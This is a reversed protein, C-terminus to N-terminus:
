LLQRLLTKAPVPVRPRSEDANPFLSANPFPKRRGTQSGGPVLAQPGGDGSFGVERKQKDRLYPLEFDGFGLDAWGELAKLLHCPVFTEARAGISRCATTKGAQRPQSVLAVQRHRQQHDKFVSTYLPAREEMLVM